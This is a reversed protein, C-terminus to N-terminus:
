WRKSKGDKDCAKVKVVLEPNSEPERAENEKKKEETTGREKEELGQASSSCPPEAKRAQASSLRSDPAGIRSNTGRNLELFTQPM